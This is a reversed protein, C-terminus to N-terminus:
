KVKAKVDNPKMKTSRVNEANQLDSTAVQIEFQMTKDGCNIKPQTRLRDTPIARAKAACDEALATLQADTYRVGKKKLVEGMTKKLESANSAQLHSVQALLRLADTAQANASLFLLATSLTVVLIATRLM